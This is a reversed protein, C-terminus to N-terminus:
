ARKQEKRRAVAVLGLLGTGFLWLAAPVPVQSNLSSSRVAMAFQLNGSFGTGQNGHEFNFDFSRLANDTSQVNTWYRGADLSTFPGKNLLGFFPQTICDTTSAASCLAINGLSNYYLHAMENNISGAYTTGPASINYGRDATGDFAPTYVYNSSGNIPSITPLRWDNYGLYNAANMNDIWKLATAWTMAGDARIGTGTSADWEGIGFRETRALNANALWNINLTSDFILGDGTDILAAQATNLTCALVAATCTGKLISNMHEGKAILNRKEERRPM